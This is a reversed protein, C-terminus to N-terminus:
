IPALSQPNNANANAVLVDSQEPCSGAVRRYIYYEFLQWLLVAMSWAGVIPPVACM